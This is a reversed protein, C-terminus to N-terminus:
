WIFVEEAVAARGIESMERKEEVVEKVYEYVWERETCIGFYACSDIRAVEFDEKHMTFVPVGKLIKIEFIEFFRKNTCLGPWSDKIAPDVPESATASEYLDYLPALFYKPLPLDQDGHLHGKERFHIGHRRCRTVTCHWESLKERTFGFSELDPDHASVVWKERDMMETVMWGSNSLLGVYPLVPVHIVYHLVVLGRAIRRIKALLHDIPLLDASTISRLEKTFLTEKILRRLAPHQWELVASVTVLAHDYRRYGSLHGRHSFFRRLLELFDYKSTDFNYIHNREKCLRRQTYYISKKVLTRQSTTILDQFAKCTRMSRQLDRPAVHGLVMIQLEPPLDFFPFPGKPPRDDKVAPALSPNITTRSTSNNAGQPEEVLRLQELMHLIGATSPFDHEM